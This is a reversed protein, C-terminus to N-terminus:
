AEDVDSPVDDAGTHYTVDDNGFVCLFSSSM